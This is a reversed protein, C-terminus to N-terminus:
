GAPPATTNAPANRSREPAPPRCGAARAQVVYYLSRTQAYRAHSSIMDTPEGTALSPATTLGSQGAGGTTQGTGFGSTDLASQSLAAQNWRELPAECAEVVARGVVDAADRAPALAYGWRHICDEFAAADAEGSAAGPTTPTAAVAKFPTCYGTDTSGGDALRNQNCAALGTLALGLACAAGFM